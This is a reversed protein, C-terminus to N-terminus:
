RKLKGFKKMWIKKKEANIINKISLSVGIKPVIRDLKTRITKIVFNLLNASYPTSKPPWSKTVKLMMRQEKAIKLSLFILSLLDKNKNSTLKMSM